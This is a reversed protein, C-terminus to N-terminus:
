LIHVTLHPNQEEADELVQRASFAYMRLVGAMTEWSRLTLITDESIACLLDYMADLNRGYWEPFSLAEAFVTHFTDRSEIDACHIIIEKM